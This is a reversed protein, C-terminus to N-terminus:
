PVMTSRWREPGHLTQNVRSDRDDTEQEGRSVALLKRTAALVTDLGLTAYPHGLTQQSVEPDIPMAELSAKPEQRRTQQNSDPM